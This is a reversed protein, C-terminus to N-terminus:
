IAALLRILRKIYEQYFQSVQSGFLFDKPIQDWLLCFLQTAKILSALHRMLHSISEESNSLFFLPLFDFYKKSQVTQVVIEPNEHKEFKSM